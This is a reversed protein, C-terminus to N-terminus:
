DTPQGGWATNNTYRPTTFNLSRALNEETKPTPPPPTIAAEGPPDQHVSSTNHPSLSHLSPDQRRERERETTQTNTFGRDHTVYDKKKYKDVIYEYCDDTNSPNHTSQNRIAHSYPNTHFVQLQIHKEKNPRNM